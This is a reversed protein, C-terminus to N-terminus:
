IPTDCTDGCNSMVCAVVQPYPGYSCQQVCTEECNIDNAIVQLKSVFSQTLERMVQEKAVITEEFIENMNEGVEMEYEAM